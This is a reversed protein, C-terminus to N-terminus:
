RKAKQKGSKNSNGDGDQKSLGGSPEDIDMISDIRNQIDTQEFSEILADINPSVIFRRTVEGLVNLRKKQPDVYVAHQLFSPNM